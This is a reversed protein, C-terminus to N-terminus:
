DFPSMEMSFTPEIFNTSLNVYWPALKEDVSFSMLMHNAFAYVAISLIDIMYVNLRDSLIYRWM